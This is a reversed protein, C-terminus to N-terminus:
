LGVQLDCTVRCMRM